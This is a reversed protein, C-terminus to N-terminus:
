PEPRINECYACNMFRKSRCDIDSGRIEYKIEFSKNKPSIFSTLVASLFDDISEPDLCIGNECAPYDLLISTKKCDQDIEDKEISINRLYPSVYSKNEENIAGSYNTEDNDRVKIRGWETATDCYVLLFIIPNLSLCIGTNDKSKIENFVTKNHLAIALCAINILHAIRPVKSFGGQHKHYQQMLIISSLVGHDNNNLAKQTLIRFIFSETLKSYYSKIMCEKEDSDKKIIYYSSLSQFIKPVIDKKFIFDDWFFKSKLKIGSVRTSFTELGESLREFSYGCDHFLSALTWIRLVDLKTFKRVDDKHEESIFRSYNTDILNQFYNLDLKNIIIYGCLFTHFQHMLHDRYKDLDYLMLDEHRKLRDWVDAFLDGPLSLKELLVKIFFNIRKIIDDGFYTNRKLVYLLHEIQYHIDSLEQAENLNSLKECIDEVAEKENGHKDENIKRELKARYNRKENGIDKIHNLIADLCKYMKVYSFEKNKELVNLIDTVIIENVSEVAFDKLKEGAKDIIEGISNQDYFEFRLCGISKKKDDPDNLIMWAAHHSSFNDYVNPDPHTISHSTHRRLDKRELILNKVVTEKGNKKNIEDIIEKKTRCFYATMGEYRIAEEPKELVEDSFVLYKPPRQNYDFNWRSKEPNQEAHASFRLVRIDKKLDDFANKTEDNHLKGNRFDDILGKLGGKYKKIFNKKIIKTYFEDRSTVPSNELLSLLETAELDEEQIFKYLIVADAKFIKVFSFLLSKLSFNTDVIAKKDM